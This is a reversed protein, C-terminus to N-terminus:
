RPAFRPRASARLYLAEDLAGRPRLEPRLCGLPARSVFHAPTSWLVDLGKGSRLATPEPRGWMAKAFHPLHAIAATPQHSNRAVCVTLHDM